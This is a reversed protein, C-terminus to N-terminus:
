ENRFHQIAFQLLSHKTVSTTQTHQTPSGDQDQDQRTVTGNTSIISDQHSISNKRHVVYQAPYGNQPSVSEREIIQQHHEEILQQHHHHHNTHQSHGNM